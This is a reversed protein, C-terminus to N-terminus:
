VPDKEKKKDNDGCEDGSTKPCAQHSGLVTLFHCPSEVPAKLSRSRGPRVSFEAVQQSIHKHQNFQRRTLSGRSVVSLGEAIQRQMAPRHKRENGTPSLRHEVPRYSSGEKGAQWKARCGATYPLLTDSRTSRPPRRIM